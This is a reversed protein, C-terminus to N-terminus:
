LVTEPRWDYEMRHATRKAAEMGHLRAVIHLSMDIGASIGASTVVQGNDVFRVDRRIETNPAAAILEDFAAWHTTAALHDLVGACGLILAGTCVSLTLDGRDFHTRVWDLVAPHEKAPRSGPGGPVVIIDTKPCTALTYTPNISLGNRASVPHAEEAVTCVNFIGEGKETHAVGFVEFPGAFDLVEVEDFILIAVSQTM